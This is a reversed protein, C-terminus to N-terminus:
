NTYEPRGDPLIYILLAAIKVNVASSKNTFTKRKISLALGYKKNFILSYLRVSFVTERGRQM